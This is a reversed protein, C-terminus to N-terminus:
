SFLELYFSAPCVKSVHCCYLKKSLEGQPSLLSWVIEEALSTMLIDVLRIRAPGPLKAFFPTAALAEINSRAQSPLM